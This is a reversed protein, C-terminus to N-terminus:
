STVPQPEKGEVTENESEVAESDTLNQFQVGLAKTASIWLGIATLLIAAVYPASLTLTSFLLLLVQHIISGGSKGLRSGFGDIAAKGKLKVEHPLPIFAMEKTTDFVSYKAAKSCINQLAGFFVTVALPTVGLSLMVVDGLEERWFFFVFFGISTVLM